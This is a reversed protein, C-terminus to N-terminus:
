SSLRALERKAAETLLKVRGRAQAYIDVRQNSLLVERIRRDIDETSIESLKKGAKKLGSKIMALAIARAEADVPDQGNLSYESCYDSFRKALDRTFTEPSKNDVVMSDMIKAFNSRLNSHLKRNLIQAEAGTCVHGETYPCPVLFHFGNITIEENM